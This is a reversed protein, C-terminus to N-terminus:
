ATAGAHLRESVRSKHMEEHQGDPHVIFGSRIRRESRDMVKTWEFIVIMEGYPRTAGGIWSEETLQERNSHNERLERIKDAQPATPWGGSTSDKHHIVGRVSRALRRWCEKQGEPLGEWLGNKIPGTIDAYVAYLHQAASEIQEDTRTDGSM